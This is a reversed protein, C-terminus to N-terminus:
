LAPGSKALTTNCVPGADSTFSGNDSFKGGAGISPAGFFWSFFALEQPHYTVGNPMTVASFYTGTLPDGVELNNQCGTQVQGTNGWAPTGNSGSPDDLTEGIENSIVAIDTPAGFNFSGSTDYDAVAYLQINPQSITGSHYGLICCSSTGLPNSQPPPGETMVVNYFLFIPFTAPGVGQSALNSLITPVETQDFYNMDIVGLTGCSANSVAGHPSNMAVTVVPVTATLNLMTHYSNGSLSVESFFSARQFADIYQTTGEDVGNMTFSTPTLIPSEQTLSVATATSNPLCAPDTHTPDFITTFNSSNTITIKVPILITDLYTTRAGHFFPSRGVMTGSYTNGDRSATTTFNWLPPSNSSATSAVAMASAAHDGHLPIVKTLIRPTSEQASVYSTGACALTTAFILWLAIRKM